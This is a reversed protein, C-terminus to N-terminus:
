RLNKLAKLIELQAYDFSGDRFLAIDISVVGGKENVKRVYQYLEEPSYKSGWSGWGANGFYGGYNNEHGLFSLIHWQAGDKFRGEPYCWFHNEEGATFDDHISYRIPGPRSFAKEAEKDGAEAKDTLIQMKEYPLTKGELLHEFEPNNIDVQLVGNNFAVIVNENGARAADKYMKLLDDNYGFFPYSGDIWWGRVKEGYREAYEKLVASWKKVFDETVMEKEHSSYGFKRGYEEDAYPGDATYYVMLPINYKLLEDALEMILDRESCAEGPKAGTIKNYTDNPACLYRSAQMLTFVVYGANIEHMAKAYAEVDFCNVCENWSVAPAFRSGAGCQMKSALYHTFVGWKAEYLWDARNM